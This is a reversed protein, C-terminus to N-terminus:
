FHTAGEGNYHRVRSRQPKQYLFATQCQECLGQPQPRGPRRALKVYHVAGDVCLHGAVPFDYVTRVVTSNDM